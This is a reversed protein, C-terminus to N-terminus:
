SYKKKSKKSSSHFRVRKKGTKKGKKAKKLHKKTKGKKTHKKTTRKPAGGTANMPVSAGRNSRRTTLNRRHPDLFVEVNIREVAKKMNDFTNKETLDQVSDILAQKGVSDPILENIANEVARYGEIRNVSMENAASDFLSATILKKEFIKNGYYHISKVFYERVAKVSKSGESTAARVSSTILGSSRKLLHVLFLALAIRIRWDYRPKQVINLIKSLGLFSIEQDYVRFFSTIYRTMAKVLIDESFCNIIKDIVDPSNITYVFRIKGLYYSEFYTEILLVSSEYDVEPLGYDRFFDIDTVTGNELVGNLYEKVIRQLMDGYSGGGGEGRVMLPNKVLAFGGNTHIIVSELPDKIYNIYHHIFGLEVLRCFDKWYYDKNVTDKTKTKTELVFDVCSEVDGNSYLQVLELSADKEEENRSIEELQTSLEQLNPVLAAGEAAQEEAPGKAMASLGSGGVMSEFQEEEHESSCHPM